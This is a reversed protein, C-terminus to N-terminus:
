RLHVVDGGQRGQSDGQRRNRWRAAPTRRMHIANRYQDPSHNLALVSGSISNRTTENGAVIQLTLIGLFEQPRNILDCTSEGHALMSILDPAPETKAREHWLGTFCELAKSL